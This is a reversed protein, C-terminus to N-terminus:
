SKNGVIPRDDINSRGKLKGPIEPAKQPQLHLKLKAKSGNGNLVSEKNM